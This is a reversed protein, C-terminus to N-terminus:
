AELALSAAAYDEIATGVSKFLTITTEDQRVPGTGRCLDVLEGTIHARTIAGSAIPLLLDGAEALAGDFTDVYIISARRIAEDDTERLDHRYAGVLDLHVGPKLWAGRVLPERSLTACGIVDAERAAAELSETTAVKPALGSLDAALASAAEARRAWISIRQYRRVSCHAEALNRAIRGAGVILLHGVDPRALMDAAMASTAATRRATIEGGDLVARPEGTTGDFVQVVASVAPLGRAGNGPVVIATKVVLAQGRQWAPMMLLTGDPDGPVEFTHVTRSPVLCGSAFVAHIAPILREWPLARRVAQQDLYRMDAAYCTRLAM